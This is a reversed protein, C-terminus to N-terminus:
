LVATRNREARAALPARLSFLQDLVPDIAPMRERAFAPWEVDALTLKSEAAKPFIKGDVLNAFRHGHKTQLRREAEDMNPLDKVIRESKYQEVAETLPQLLRRNVKPLRQAFGFNGKVPRFEGLAHCLDDQPLQLRDAAVGNLLRSLESVTWDLRKQSWQEGSVLREILDESLGATRLVAGMVGLPETKANQYSLAIVDCDLAAVRDLIGDFWFDVHGSELATVAEIYRDFTQSDRRKCNQSWRSPLFDAWHRFCFVFIVPVGAFPELLRQFQATSFTSVVENSLFLTDFGRGECNQLLARCPEADWKPSKANLFTNAGASSDPYFVGESALARRRKLALHQLSTTGTKHMGGHIVVRM